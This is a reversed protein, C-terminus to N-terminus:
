NVVYRFQDRELTTDTELALHSGFPLAELRKINQKSPGIFASQDRTSITITVTKGPGAAALLERARLYWTRAIVLEGFAPHYPGALVQQELEESPQLGMRVVKIGHKVFLERARRTLAIAKNMSLPIWTTENYLKALGTDKLVIAPYLRIFDPHFSIVERVGKLFSSTSEGPLGPMLQIGLEFGNKALLAAAVRSHKSTHGRFSRSLVGDNLSQVGLEVTEVGYDRLFSCIDQSICDPRTSLRISSIVGEKIYPAVIGLLRQQSSEELCTFSGGFFAVQTKTQTRSRSLWLEITQHLDEEVHEGSAESVGTAAWQNCFICRHSCGRHQIFFPIILAM